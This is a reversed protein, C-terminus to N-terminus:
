LTWDSKADITMFIKSGDNLALEYRLNVPSIIEMVSEDHSTREILLVAAITKENVKARFCKAAGFTRKGDSFGDIRIGSATVLNERAKLDNDSLLKLNLTGPYPSFGLKSEFQEMYGSMSVYRAAEGLGSFVEGTVTLEDEQKNSLQKRPSRFPEMVKM